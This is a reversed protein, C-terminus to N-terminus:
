KYLPTYSVYQGCIYPESILLVQREEPSGSNLEQCECTLKCDGTVRTGPFVFSEPMSLCQVGHISICVYTCIPAIRICM